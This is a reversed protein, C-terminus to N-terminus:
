LIIKLKGTHVLQRHVCDSLWKAGFTKYLKLLAPDDPSCLPKYNVACQHDDDLYIEMPRVIEPKEQTDNESLEILRFGLCWPENKLRTQLPEQHLESTCSAAVALQKLYQIYIHIKGKLIKNDETFNAFYKAQRNILLEAVISSTPDHLVGVSLLFSNGKLGFDVFDILGSTNINDLTQTEFNQSSEIALKQVNSRIFVESPKMFTSTGPVPIFAINSLHKIFQQNLGDLGNLYAFIERAWELMFLENKREMLIDFAQPLTPHTKIGLLSIKFHKNFLKTVEPLLTACLPNTDTVVKDPSSLVVNEYNNETPLRSPLFAQKPNSTEWLTFYHKQFNKAFFQLAIPLRYSKKTRMYSRQTSDHEEIIRDMLKNLDPVERVGLEKLFVYEASHIHVDHWDIILLTRWKLEEAVIPFHLEEPSYWTVPRETSKLTTGILFKSHKLENFDSDSMNNREKILTDILIQMNERNPAATIGDVIGKINLIRCGIHKLFDDSVLNVDQHKYNIRRSKEINSSLNLTIVPLEPTLFSSPIYAQSPLKMGQTTSICEITSLVNQIQKSELKSFQSLEQSFLSLLCEATKDNQLLYHQNENLYFNILKTFSCPSLFFNNQLQERSFHSAITMPLINPPLPLVSPINSANYYKVKGLSIIPSKMDERFCVISLVRRIYDNSCVENSCLWNLLAILEIPLLISSALQDEIIYEDANNILKFRKLVTFFGIKTIELPVLPFSLFSHIHKSDALFAQNSSVLVLHCDSPSLKVPVLIKKNSAIQEQPTSPQFSYPALIANYCKNSTSQSSNLITQNYIHRIILGASTLLEKNWKAIYPNQLDLNEREITPILHSYVHMGIGTSQYTGLGIFIFGSPHIEHGQFKLPLISNLIQINLDNRTTSLELQQQEIIVNTPVFLIQIHVISPLPKKLIEQITNYLQKNVTLQAELTVHGLTISPGNRITFTQKTHVLSDLSLINNMSSQPKFALMGQISPVISQTKSIKFVTVSNIKIVLNVIHRTFSLVRAFYAKLQFLDIAPMDDNSKKRNQTEVTRDKNLSSVVELVHRNKMKLIISTVKSQQEVPLKHRLTRLVDDHWVFLMYEEGSLIMPEETYSFVSYFGVGFQGISAVDTNGEAIASVRKWDAETFIQGNNKTCIETVEGSHFDMEQFSSSLTNCKLELEYFTARADDANQILERFVVFDSSYRALMGDILRRINPVVKEEHGHRRANLRLNDWSSSQHQM